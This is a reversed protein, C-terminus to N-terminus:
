KLGTDLMHKSTTRQLAFSIRVIYDKDVYINDKFLAKKKSLFGDWWSGGLRM